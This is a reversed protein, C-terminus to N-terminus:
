KVDQVLRVSQGFYLLRLSESTAPVLLWNYFELEYAFSFFESPNTMSWYHGSVKDGENDYYEKGRRCNAAPLFVAGNEEMKAWEEIDYSNDSYNSYIDSESKQLRIYENDNKWILGKETSPNFTLGEPVIWDDPLIILGPIGNVKGLGFLKQDRSRFLYYWEDAVLTRWLFKQNGGNLIPIFGWDLSSSYDRWEETHKTPDYGTGWGFLDLWGNYKEVAINENDKGVFDWQNTAFRWKDAAPNYQLNGQSFRVKKGNKDVTFEGKLAGQDSNPNTPANFSEGCSVMFLSLTVICLTSLFIKKIM